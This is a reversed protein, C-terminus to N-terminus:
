CHRASHETAHRKCGADVGALMANTFKSMVVRAAVVDNSNLAAIDHLYNLPRQRKTTSTDISGDMWTIIWTIFSVTIVLHRLM